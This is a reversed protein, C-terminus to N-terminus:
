CSWACVACSGVQTGTKILKCVYCARLQKNLAAFEGDAGTMVRDGLAPVPAVRQSM